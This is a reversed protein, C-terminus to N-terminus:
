YYARRYTLVYVIPSAVFIILAVRPVVFGLGVGVLATVPQLALRLVIYRRHANTIPHTPGSREAVWWAAFLTATCAALNVGYLALAPADLLYRGLVGTSFPLVVVTFLFLMNAWMLGLKVGRLSGFILHHLIWYYSVIAFSLAFIGLRPAIAVLSAMLNERSGDPLRVDLILLTLAVAFVGDSIAAIRDTQSRKEVELKEDSAAKRVSMAISSTTMSTSAAGPSTTM